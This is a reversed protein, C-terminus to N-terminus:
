VRSRGRRRQLISVVERAVDEERAMAMESYRRVFYDALGHVADRENDSDRQRQTLHDGGDAEVIFKEEEWLFDAEYGLLPVNVAPFPLDHESCIHLLLGELWSRIAELPLRRQALLKRVLGAGRHGPCADLLAKLRERDIRGNAEAREYARRTVSPLDTAALDWVTRTPTTVPIGMRETLDEAAIVRPRHVIVGRPRRRTRDDITVHFARSLKRDVIWQLQGAPGHSLAARPGGAKVAALWHGEPTLLAPPIVAFVGPYLRHLRGAQSWLAATVRPVGARALEGLDIIGHHRSAHDAVRRGVPTKGYLM